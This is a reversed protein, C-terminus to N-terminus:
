IVTLKRTALFGSSSVRLIYSGCPIGSTSIDITRDGAYKAEVKKCVRGQMDIIQISVPATEKWSGISVTVSAGAQAPVPYVQLPSSDAAPVDISSNDIYENWTFKEWAGIEYRNCNMPKTGNESCVIANILAGKLGVQNTGVSYWVLKTVNSTAECTMATKTSKAAIYKGNSAKLETYKGTISTEVTFICEPTITPSNCVMQNSSDFTVYYGENKLTIKKGTPPSEDFSVVFNAFNFGPEDACFKLMRTGSNVSIGSLFISTWIQYDGTKPVTIKGTKDVGDVEVHFAGKGEPSSVRFEIKYKGNRPFTLRYGLWEGTAINFINAKGESCAQIDVGDSRYIGGDNVADIDHFTGGDAGTTYNEALIMNPVTKVGIVPDAPKLGTQIVKQMTGDENYYLKDVCISRAAGGTVTGYSLVNNHYFAYWQGKYEVISGHQTGESTGGVVVGKYVWPGLPNSSMAYRMENKVYGDDHGDAYSLYYIGNRKHVWPGEHYNPLGEMIKMQGDLEVMNEKLKGGACGGPGNQYIYAQGDEDIFVCPDIGSFMGEIYGQATFDSAPKTSTAIGIRWTETADKHPFYFYYTGNRYACDPAWMWGGDPRAWSVDAAELIQGHDVWNVMDDTSFVHYKDMLDCGKAPQVDHSAYVYLRGDAWVHASPDATYIRDGNADVRIFPNEAMDQAAVTQVCAAVALLLQKLNSFAFNKM